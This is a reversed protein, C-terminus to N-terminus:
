YSKKSAVSVCHRGNLETEVREASGAIDLGDVQKTRPISVFALKGEGLVRRPLTSPLSSEPELAGGQLSALSVPVIVDHIAVVNGM